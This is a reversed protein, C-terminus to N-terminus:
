LCDGFCAVSFQLHSDSGSSSRHGMKPQMQYAELRRVFVKIPEVHM